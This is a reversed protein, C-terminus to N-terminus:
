LSNHCPIPYYKSYPQFRGTPNSKSMFSDLHILCSLTTDLYVIGMPIGCTLYQDVPGEPNPTDYPFPGKKYPFPPGEGKDIELTPNGEM